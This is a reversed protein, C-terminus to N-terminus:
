RRQKREPAFLSDAFGAMALMPYGMYFCLFANFTARPLLNGPASALNAGGISGAHGSPIVGGLFFVLFLPIMPWILSIELRLIRWCNKRMARWSARLWGSPRAEPDRAMAYAYLGLRLGLWASVIGALGLALMAMGNAEEFGYL